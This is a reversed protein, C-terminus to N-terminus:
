KAPRILVRWDVVDTDTAGASLFVENKSGLEQFRWGSDGRPRKAADFFEFRYQIFKTHDETNRVPQSVFLPKVPSAPTVVAPGFVLEEDLPETVVIRPYASAPLLDTRGGAPSNVTDCAPLAVALTLAVLALAAFRTVHM